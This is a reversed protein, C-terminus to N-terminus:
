INIDLKRFYSAQPSRSDILQFSLPALSSVRLQIRQGPRFKRGSQNQVRILDGQFSVILDDNDMIEEILSWVKQNLVLQHISQKM